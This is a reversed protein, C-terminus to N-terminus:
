SGTVKSTSKTPTRNQKLIRKVAEQVM